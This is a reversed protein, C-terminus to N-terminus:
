LRAGVGLQALGRLEVKHGFFRTRYVPQETPGHGRQPKHEHAKALADPETKAATSRVQTQAAALLKLAQQLEGESGKLEACKRQLLGILHELQSQQLLAVERLREIDMERRLDLM